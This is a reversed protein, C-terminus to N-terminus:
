AFCSRVARIAAVAPRERRPALARLMDAYRPSVIFGLRNSFRPTGSSLCFNV